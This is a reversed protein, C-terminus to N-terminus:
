ARGSAPPIRYLCKGSYGLSTQPTARASIGALNSAKWGPGSATSIYPPASNRSGKKRELKARQPAWTENFKCSPPSNPFAALRHIPEHFLQRNARATTLKRLNMQMLRHMHVCTRENSRKQSRSIVRDSVKSIISFRNIFEKRQQYLQIIM